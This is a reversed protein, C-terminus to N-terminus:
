RWVPQIGSERMAPAFPMFETRGIECWVLYEAHYVVGMRDTESYRVRVVTEHWEEFPADEPHLNTM